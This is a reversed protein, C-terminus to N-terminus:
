RPISIVAIQNGLAISLSTGDPNWGLSFDGDVSGNWQDDNVDQARWTALPVDRKQLDWVTVADPGAAALLKGDPSYAISHAPSEDVMVLRKLCKFPQNADWIRVSGSATCTALHVVPSPSPPYEISSIGLANPKTSSQFDIDTLFPDPYEQVQLNGPDSPHLIGLCYRQGDVGMIAVIGSSPEFKIKEWTIRTEITRQCTLSEGIEYVQLIDIGCVVFTSDSTWVAEYIATETFTTWAPIQEDGPNKWIKISGKKGDSSIALLLQKAENWRLTIVLGATSSVVQYDSGGDVLKLLKDAKMVEGIENVLEERASVTMEGHSNWCVATIEFSTLPLPIDMIKPSGKSEADTPQNILHLRLLSKGAAVLLPASPPGWLTQTVLKEQEKVTCTFLTDSALQIIPETQEGISNGISLTSIPLEAVTPSEAESAMAESEARVSNTVHTSGNQDIEMAEGNVQHNMRSDIGNVKGKKKRSQKKSPPPEQVVITGPGNAEEALEHAPIGKDLTLLTGNRVSYPRGHDRGFNYRHHGNGAEAQLKDFWLGDQLLNILTHQSVNKAFPLSEPDRNWCRSLQLAANGYGAEQLYRWVLYNVVNSSLAEVTM